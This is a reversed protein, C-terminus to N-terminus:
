SNVTALPDYNRASSDMCGEVAVICGSNVNAAPNYSVVASGTYDAEEHKRKYQWGGSGTAASGYTGSKYAPTGSSVNAYTAVNITCGPLPEICPKDLDPVTALSNYNLATSSLCGKTSFKCMGVQKATPDYNVASPLMCGKRFDAPGM